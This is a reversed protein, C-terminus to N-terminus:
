ASWGEGRNDLYGLLWPLYLHRSHKLIPWHLHAKSRVGTLTSVRTLKFFEFIFSLLKKKVKLRFWNIRYDVLKKSIKEPTWKTCSIDGGCCEMLMAHLQGSFLCHWKVLLWATSCRKALLDQYHWNTLIDTGTINSDISPIPANSKLALCEVLWSKVLHYLISFFRSMTNQIEHLQTWIFSVCTLGTWYQNILDHRLTDTCM